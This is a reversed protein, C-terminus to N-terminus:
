KPLQIGFQRALDELNVGKERAINEAMQRLEASSKGNVMQLVQGAAPNNNLLMQLMNVPTQGSQLMGAIMSIPFNIM